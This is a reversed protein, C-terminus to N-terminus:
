HGDGPFGPVFGVVVRTVRWSYYVVMLKLISVEKDKLSLNQTCHRVVSCTWYYSFMLM